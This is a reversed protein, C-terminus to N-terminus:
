RDWLTKAQLTSPGYFTLGLVCKSLEQVETMQTQVMAALSFLTTVKNIAMWECRKLASSAWIGYAEQREFPPEMVKALFKSGKAQHAVLFFDSPDFRTAWLRFLNFTWRAPPVVASWGLLAGRQKWVHFYQNTGRGFRTYTLTPTSSAELFRRPNFARLCPPAFHINDM